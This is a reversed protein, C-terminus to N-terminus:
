SIIKSYTCIVKKTIFLFNIDLKPYFYLIKFLYIKKNKFYMKILVGIKNNLSSKRRLLILIFKIFMM